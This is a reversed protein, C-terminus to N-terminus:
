LGVCAPCPGSFQVQISAPVLSPQVCVDGQATVGVLWTGVHPVPPSLTVNCGAADPATLVVHTMPATCDDRAGANAVLNSNPSITSSYCNQNGFPSTFWQTAIPKSGINWMNDTSFHIPAPGLGHCPPCTPFASVPLTANGVATTAVDVCLTETGPAQGVLVASGIWVDQGTAANRQYANSYRVSCNVFTNGHVTLFLEDLNVLCDTSDGTAIQASNQPSLGTSWCNHRVERAQVDVQGKGLANVVNFYSDAVALRSAFALVAVTLALTCMLTFLKQFHSSLLM